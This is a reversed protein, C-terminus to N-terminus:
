ILPKKQAQSIGKMMKVLLKRGIRSSFDTQWYASQQFQREQADSRSIRAQFGKDWIFIEHELTYKM